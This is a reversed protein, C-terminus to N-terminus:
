LPISDPDFDPKDSLPSEKPKFGDKTFRQWEVFGLSQPDRDNFYRAVAQRFETERMSTEGKYQACFKEWAERKAMKLAVAGAGETKSTQYNTTGKTREAVVYDLVDNKPEYGADQKTRIILRGGKGEFQEPEVEGREYDHGLGVAYCAHRFKHAFAPTIYDFVQAEKGNADWVQMTLRISQKTGGKGDPKYHYEGKRVEFDCEGPKLLYGPLSAEKAEEETIPNFQM